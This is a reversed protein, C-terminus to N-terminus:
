DPDKVQLLDNEEWEYDCQPCHFSMSSMSVEFSHACKPCKVNRKTSRTRVAVGGIVQDLEEDTLDIGADRIIAKKEDNTNANAVKEKLEGTLKM